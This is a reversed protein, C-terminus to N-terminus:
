GNPVKEPTVVKNFTVVKFIDKKLLRSIKRQGSVSLQVDVYQNTFTDVKDLMIKVQKLQM